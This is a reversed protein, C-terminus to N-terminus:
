SANADGSDKAKDNGKAKQGAQEKAIDKEIDQVMQALKEDTLGLQKQQEPSLLVGMVYPKGIIYDRVYKAIDERSVKKLNPVYNLYYDLGAVTWWFSVTHAFSSTKERDYIDQVALITKANELQADTYYNPDALKHLEVLMARIAKRLNQPPVQATLNIPGTHAQTFYGLDASLTVGSDVLDKQFTSTPQSLIFSLVDAAYTAKPTKTVSPGHWSFQIYPVKVDRTVTLYSKKKLPPHTPVPHKKFPAPARKWKTFMKKALAFAKDPKVDGAIILAANNPVYYTKKMTQMEQVTAAAVTDRTGLADKRSPYKYWLKKELARNFWFYPNSENRDIEGIVVQKERAFEKPDFKTSTIANYMFKMGPKFNDAPLTFFYNVRETSTSGNFVIGLQRLRNLYAEQNPIVANAKFFMHEYLHSLGNLKPTETMAGNKVAMEITVIPLSPDPIVIVQMGNSLTKKQILEGPEKADAPRPLASVTLGAVLAMVLALCVSRTKDRLPLARLPNSRM